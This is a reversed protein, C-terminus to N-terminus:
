DPMECVLHLVLTLPEEVLVPVGDHLLLDGEGDDEEDEEGDQHDDDDEGGEGGGGLDGDQLGGGVGEEGVEEEWFTGVEGRYFRRM